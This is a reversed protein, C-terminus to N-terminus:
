AARRDPIRWVGISSQEAGVAHLDRYLRRERERGQARDWWCPHAERLEEITAPLMRRLVAERDARAHSYGCEDCVEAVRREAELERMIEAHLRRVRHATLVTVHLGERILHSVYTREHGLRGALERGTFGARLLERILRRTPRADIRCGDAAAGVDVALIREAISRRVRPMAQSAVRWVTRRAVGAADAVSPAGMGQRSLARVHAAVAQGDILPDPGEVRDRKRRARSYAANARRCERCRCRDHVYRGRSGHPFGARPEEERAAAPPPPPASSSCPAPAPATM